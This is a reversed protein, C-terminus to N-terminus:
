AAGRKRRSRSSLGSRNPAVPPRASTASAQAAADGSVNITYDRRSSQPERRLDRNLEVVLPVLRDLQAHVDELHHELRDLLTQTEDAVSRLRVLQGVTVGVLLPLATM